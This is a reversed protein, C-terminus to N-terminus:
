NAAGGSRRRSAPKRKLTSVFLGPGRVKVVRGYNKQLSRYSLQETRIEVGLGLIRNALEGHARKREAAL